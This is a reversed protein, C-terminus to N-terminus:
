RSRRQRLEYSDFVWFALRCVALCWAVFAVLVWLRAWVSWQVEDMWWAMGLVALASMVVLAFSLYGRM